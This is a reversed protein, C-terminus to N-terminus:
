YTFHYKPVPIVPNVVALSIQEHETLPITRPDISSSWKGTSTPTIIKVWVTGSYGAVNTMSLPEGWVDFFNGLKLGLDTKAEDHIVGSRDHTHLNYFCTGRVVQDGTPNFTWPAVIGVAWPIMVQMGSPDFISLHVHIHFTETMFSHCELLRDIKQGQGGTATDGDPFVNTGISMGPVLPIPTSTVDQIANNATGGISQESPAPVVPSRAECSALAVVSAAVIMHVLAFRHIRM